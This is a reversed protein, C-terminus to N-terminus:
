YCSTCYLLLYIFVDIWAIFMVDFYYDRFQRFGSFCQRTRWRLFYNMKSALSKLDYIFLGDQAVEAQCFVHIHM